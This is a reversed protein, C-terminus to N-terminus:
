PTWFPKRKQLFSKVGEQGEEGVLAKAFHAAASQRLEDQELILTEEVIRKTAAVAGPACAMVQQKIESEAAELDAHGAVAKDVLGILYAEGGTLKSGLVLMKKAKQYGLRKTVYQAIQAPPLGIRTETFAFKAEQTAVVFDCACALGLGGAMAAGDVLAVTVQPQHAILGFFTAAELSTKQAIAEAEDGGAMIQQFAKLDGGACFVEGAGTFTIGRVNRDDRVENLVASIEEIVASTLPNRKEPQNLTITMWGDQRAVLVAPSIPTDSM